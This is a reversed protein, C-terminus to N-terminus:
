AARQLYKVEEPTLVRAAILDWPRWFYRTLFAELLDPGDVEGLCHNEEHPLGVGIANRQSWEKVRRALEEHGLKRVASRVLPTLDREEGRPM